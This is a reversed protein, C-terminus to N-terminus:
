GGDGKVLKALGDAVLRAGVEARQREKENTSEGGRGAVAFLALIAEGGSRQDHRARAVLTRM